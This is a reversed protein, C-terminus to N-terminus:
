VTEPMAPRKRHGGAGVLGTATRLRSSLVMGGCGNRVAYPWGDFRDQSSAEILTKLGAEVSRILTLTTAEPPFRTSISHPRRIAGPTMTCRRTPVTHM